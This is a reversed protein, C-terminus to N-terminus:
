PGEAQRQRWHEDCFYLTKPFLPVLGFLKQHGAVSEVAARQCRGCRAVTGDAHRLVRHKLEKGHRLIDEPGVGRRALEAEIVEVAQPEMGDRFVTVRDLLDETASRRANALVKRPDFQLMNMIM